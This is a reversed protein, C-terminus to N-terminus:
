LNRMGNKDGRREQLGTAGSEEGDWVGGKRVWDGVELAGGGCSDEEVVLPPHGFRWSGHGVM